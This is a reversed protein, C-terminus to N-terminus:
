KKKTHKALWEDAERDLDEDNSLAPKAMSIFNCGPYRNCALFKSYPGNKVIIQGILCAPCYEGELKHYPHKEKQM